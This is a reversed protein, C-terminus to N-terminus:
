LEINMNVNLCTPAMECRIMDQLDASCVATTGLRDIMDITIQWATMCALLAVVTSLLANLPANAHSFTPHAFFPPPRLRFVLGVLLRLTNAMGLSRSQDVEKNTHPDAGCHM